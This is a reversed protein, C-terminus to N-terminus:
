LVPRSGDGGCRFVGGSDHQAGCYLRHVADAHLHVPIGVQLDKEHLDVDSDGQATEPFGSSTIVAAVIQGAVTAYAAGAVGLAPVFGLGFILIPDLVINTLAGAIQAIM